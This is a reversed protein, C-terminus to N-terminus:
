LAAESAAELGVKAKTIAEVEKSISIMSTQAELQTKVQISFAHLQLNNPALKLAERLDGLAEHLRDQDSRSKARAWWAEHCQPRLAIVQSANVESESFNGLKRKTRSLNLLLHTKLQGFIHQM